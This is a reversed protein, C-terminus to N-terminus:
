NSLHWLANKVLWKVRFRELPFVIYNFWILTHAILDADNSSLSSKQWIAFLFQYSVLYTSLYSFNPIFIGLISELLNKQCFDWLSLFLFVLMHFPVIYQPNIYYDKILRHYRFTALSNHDIRKKRRYHVLQINEEKGISETAMEKMKFVTITVDLHNLTM